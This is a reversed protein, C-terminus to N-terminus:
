INISIFYWVGLHQFAGHRTFTLQSAPMRQGRKSHYAAAHM